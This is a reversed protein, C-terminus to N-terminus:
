SGGSGGAILTRALSILSDPDVPKGVFAARGSKLLPNDKLEEGSYGSMFLVRTQPWREV